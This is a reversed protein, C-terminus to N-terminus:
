QTERALAISQGAAYWVLAMPGGGKDRDVMECTQRATQLSGEWSESTEPMPLTVGALYDSNDRLQEHMRVLLAACLAAARRNRPGPLAVRFEECLAVVFASIILKPSPYGARDVADAQGARSLQRLLRDVGAIPLEDLLAPGLMLMGSLRRQLADVANRVRAVM